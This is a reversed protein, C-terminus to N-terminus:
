LRNGSDRQKETHVRTFFISAIFSLDRTVYFKFRAWSKRKRTAKLKMSADIWKRM